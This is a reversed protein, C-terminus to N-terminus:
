GPGACGSLVSRSQAWCPTTSSAQGKYGGAAGQQQQVAVLQEEHRGMSAPVWLFWSQRSQPGGAWPRGEAPLFVPVLYDAHKHHPDAKLIWCVHLTKFVFQTM